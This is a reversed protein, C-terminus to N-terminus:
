KTKLFQNALEVIAYLLGAGGAAGAGLAVGHEKVTKKAPKSDPPPSSSYGADLAKKTRSELATLRERIGGHGGLQATIDDLNESMNRMDTRMERLEDKFDSRIDKVDEKLSSIQDAIFRFADNSMDYDLNADEKSM